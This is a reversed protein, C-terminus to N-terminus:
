WDFHDQFGGIGEFSSFYSYLKRKDERTALHEAGRTLVVERKSCRIQGPTLDVPLQLVCFIPFFLNGFCVPQKVCQCLCCAAPHLSGVVVAHSSPCSSAHFADLWFDDGGWPRFPIVEM